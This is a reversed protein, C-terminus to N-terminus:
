MILYVRYSVCAYVMAANNCGDQNRPVAASLSISAAFCKHTAVATCGVEDSLEPHDNPKTTGEAMYVHLLSLDAVWLRYMLEQMRYKRWREAQEDRTATDADGAKEAGGVTKEEQHLREVVFSIRGALEGEVGELACLVDQQASLAYKRALETSGAALLARSAEAKIATRV